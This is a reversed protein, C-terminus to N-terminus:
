IVLKALNFHHKIEERGRWHPVYGAARANGLHVFRALGRRTDTALRIAAHSQASTPQCSGVAQASPSAGDGVATHIHGAGHAHAAASEAISARDLAVVSLTSIYAMGVVLLCRARRSWRPDTALGLRAWIAGVVGVAVAAIGVFLLLHGPNSLTLLGEQHALEPNRAHLGADWILGVLLVILGILGVGLFWGSGSPDRGPRGGRGRASPGGSAGTQHTTTPHDSGGTIAIAPAFLLETLTRVPRM